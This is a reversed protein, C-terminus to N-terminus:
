ERLTMSIVRQMWRWRMARWYGSRGSTADLALENSALVREGKYNRGAGACQEGIGAGGQLQM